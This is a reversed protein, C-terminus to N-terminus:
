NCSLHSFILLSFILFSFVAHAPSLTKMLFLLHPSHFHSIKIAFSTLIERFCCQGKLLAIFLTSSKYFTACQFLSESVFIKRAQGAQPFTFVQTQERAMELIYCACLHVWMELLTSQQPKCKQPKETWTFDPKITTEQSATSTTLQWPRVARPDPFNSLLKHHSLIHCSTVPHSLFERFLLVETNSLNQFGCCKILAAVHQSSVYLCINM